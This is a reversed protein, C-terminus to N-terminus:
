GSEVMPPNRNPYSEDAMPVSRDRDAESDGRVKAIPKPTQNLGSVSVMPRKSCYVTM